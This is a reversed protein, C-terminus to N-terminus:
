FFWYQLALKGSETAVHAYVTPRRQATIRRQWEEYSCVSSSLGDGPFDLAYGYRGSALDASRPGVKVLNAGSWPGRLAVEDNGFIADVDLPEFSEVRACPAEQESLRVVPAYRAALEHVADGAAASATPSCACCVIVVAAVLVGRCVAQMM